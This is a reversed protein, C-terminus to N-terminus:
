EASDTLRHRPRDLPGSLSLTSVFGPDAVTSLMAELDLTWDALDVSGRWGMRVNGGDAELRMDPSAVGRDITWEAKAAELLTAGQLLTQLADPQAAAARWAILDVGLLRPQELKLRAMGKASRVMDFPAIGTAELDIELDGRGSLFRTATAAEALAGIDADTWRLVLSLDARTGGTLRMSGAFSGDAMKGTMGNLKLVDDDLDIQGKLDLFRFGGVRLMQLRVDLDTELRGIWRLDLPARSWRRATDSRQAAIAAGSDPRPMLPDLDVVGSTVEGSLRRAAHNWILSGTMSVPDSQLDADDIRLNGADLTVTGFLEMPGTQSDPPALGPMLRMALASLNQHRLAVGGVFRRAGSADDTSEGEIRGDLEVRGSLADVHGLLRYAHAQGDLRLDALMQGDLHAPWRLGPFLLAAANALSTQDVALGLDFQPNGLLSGVTGEMTIRGPTFRSEAAVRISDFTGDLDFSADFDGMRGAISDTDLGFALMLQRLDNGRATGSLAFRPDEPEDLSGSLRLVSQGPLGLKLGNLSLQGGILSADLTVADYARGGLLLSDISLKSNTDLGDLATLDSRWGRGTAPMLRDELGLAQLYADGNLQDIRLDLSFSPRRRIAVALGGNVRSRDLRMDLDYIQVVDDTASVTAVLNANRLRDVARDAVNLGAWDLLARLNDTAAEMTGDLRPHGAPTRLKGTFAMDSGGPLLATLRGINLEGRSLSADFAIQRLQSNALGIVGADVRLAAAIGSPLALATDSKRNLFTTLRRMLDDGDLQEFGVSVDLMPVATVADGVPLTATLRGRGDIGAVDFVAKELVIGGPEINMEGTLHADLPDPFRDAPTQIGAANLSTILDPTEATLSGRLRPRAGEGLKGRFTAFGGADDRLTISVRPGGGPLTANVEVALPLRAHHSNLRLSPPRGDRDQDAQGEIDKLAIDLGNRADSLELRGATFDVHRVASTRLDPAAAGTARDPHGNLRSALVILGAHNRTANALTVLRVHPGRLTVRNAVVDGLLLSAISLRIDVAQITLFSPLDGDAAGVSVNEARLRPTPLLRFSVPGDMRVPQDLLTEAEAAIGDRYSDADILFPAAFLGAVVLLAVGAVVAMLVRM